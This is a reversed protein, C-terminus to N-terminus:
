IDGIWAATGQEADMPLSTAKVLRRRVYWMYAVAFLSGWLVAAVVQPGFVEGLPPRAYAVTIAFTAAAFLPSMVLGTRTVTGARQVVIRDSDSDSLVALYQWVCECGLGAATDACVSRWSFSIGRRDQHREGSDKKAEDAHGERCTGRDATGDRASVQTTRHAVPSWRRGRQVRARPRRRRM